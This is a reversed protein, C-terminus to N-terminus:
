LNYIPENSKFDSTMSFVLRYLYLILKLFFDLVNQFEPDIKRDFHFFFDIEYSADAKTPWM